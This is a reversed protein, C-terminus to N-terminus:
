EHNRTIATDCAEHQPAPNRNGADQVLTGSVLKGGVNVHVIDGDQCVLTGQVRAYRSLSVTVILMKEPGAVITTDIHNTEAKLAFKM